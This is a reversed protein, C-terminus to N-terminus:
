RPKIVAIKATVRKEASIREGDKLVPKFLWLKVSAEIQQRIKETPANFVEFHEITGNPKIALTIKVNASGGFEQDVYYPALPCSICIPPEEHKEEL